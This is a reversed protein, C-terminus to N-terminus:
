RRMSSSLSKWVTLNFKLGLSFQVLLSSSEQYKKIHIPSSLMADVNAPKMSVLMSM